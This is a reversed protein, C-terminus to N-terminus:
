RKSGAKFGNIIQDSHTWADKLLYIGLPAIWNYVGGNIKKLEIDSLVKNNLKNM